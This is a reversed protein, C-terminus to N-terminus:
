KDRRYNGHSRNRWLSRDSGFECGWGLNHGTRIDFCKLCSTSGAIVTKEHIARWFGQGSAQCFTGIPLAPTMTLIASYVFIQFFQKTPTFSMSLHIRTQLFSSRTFDLARARATIIHIRDVRLESNPRQSASFSVPWIGFTKLNQVIHLIISM